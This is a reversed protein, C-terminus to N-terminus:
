SILPVILGGSLIWKVLYSAVLVGVGLFAKIFYGRIKDIDTKISVIKESIVSLDKQVLALDIKLSVIDNETQREDRERDYMESM